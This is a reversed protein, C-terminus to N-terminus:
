ACYAFHAMQWRRTQADVLGCVTQMIATYILHSCRFCNAMVAWNKVWGICHEVRVRVVGLRSNFAQRQETLAQGAVKKFPTCVTLRPVPLGPGTEPNRVVVWGVQGAMGQYGKDALVECGDPLRALTQLGDSLKKDHVAGPVCVSIALIDISDVVVQTKLTFAKKKGSFYRKRTANDKGPCANDPPTL